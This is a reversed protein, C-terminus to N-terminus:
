GDSGGRDPIAYLRMRILLPAVRPPFGDGGLWTDFEDLLDWGARAADDFKPDTATVIMHTAGFRGTLSRMDDLTLQEYPNGGHCNAWGGLAEIREKYQRWPEGGYPVSKCDVIVARRSVGRLWTMIPPAAVISGVPTADEVHTAGSVRPDSADYGVHFAPMWLPLLSNPLLGSALVVVLGISSVLPVINPRSDIWLTTTIVFVTMVTLVILMGVIQPTDGIASFTSYWGLVLLVAFLAMPGRRDPTDADAVAVLIAWVAFPLILTVLRYINTSQALEGLLPIDLRDSWVGILLGVLPLAVAIMLRRSEDRRRTWILLAVLVILLWGTMFRAPPWSNADCHHPSRLRCVEVFDNGNGTIGRIRTAAVAHLGAFAGSAALVIRQNRTPGTWFVACLVVIVALNAGHQVHALATAVTVLAAPIPRDVLILVIALYALCGGLVHPLAMPLIPTTSGLPSIPGLVVMPGVLVALWQAHRPLWRQALLATAVGFAVVSALFYILYTAPLIHLKEAAATLLDFTWHPQPASNNFWDDVYATPDAMSVGKVMLVAQDTFGFTYGLRMHAVLATVASSVAAILWVNPGGPDPPDAPHHVSEEVM